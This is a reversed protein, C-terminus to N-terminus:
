TLIFRHFQSVNEFYTICSEEMYERIERISHGWGAAAVSVGCAMGMLVGPKLDDVILAEEEKLDAMTMVLDAAM